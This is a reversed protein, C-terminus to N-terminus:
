LLGPTTACRQRALNAYDPNLEVLVANRGLEIAVRGTTGSGGFPDLVTGMRPCGALICPKVLAEPFTAFHAGSYPQSPITWVSRKNREAVVDKVAGSFSANARTTDRDAIEAKPNVGPRHMHEMTRSLTQNGPWGRAYRAHSDPSGPERIADADYHYRASKSLIFLYEHAKTCRDEVSEPMPNPKHWIIDQRLYWGDARLAFAVMWPIGILNKPKLGYILARGCRNSVEQNSQGGGLTSGGLGGSPGSNYTDGLNLWLTGDDRLVRRVERFVAVMTAVFEEVSAELGIQADIRTAGCKKCRSAFPMGGAGEKYETGGGNNWEGLTSKSSTQSRGKHDCEPDGGVWQGTGYDRLGWYPPSTVCCHVAQDPFTALVKRCDGVHITVKPIATKMRKENGGYLGGV